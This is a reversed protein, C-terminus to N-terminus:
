ALWESEKWRLNKVQVGPPRNSPEERGGGLGRTPHQCSPPGSNTYFTRTLLAGTSAQRLLRRKLLIRISGLSLIFRATNLVGPPSPALALTLEAEVRGEATEPVGLFGKARSPSTQTLYGYRSANQHRQM